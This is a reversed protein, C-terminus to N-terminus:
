NKKLKKIEKTQWDKFSDDLEDIFGMISDKDIIIFNEVIKVDYNISMKSLLTILNEREIGLKNSVMDLSIRNSIEFIKRLMRRKALMKIIKYRVRLYKFVDISFITMSIIIGTISIGIQLYFNEFLTPNQVNFFYCDINLSGVALYNGNSSIEIDNTADHVEIKKIPTSRLRSYLYINHEFSGTVIYEGNSSIAM